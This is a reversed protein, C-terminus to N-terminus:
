RESLYTELYNFQDKNLSYFVRRGEKRISVLGAIKLSKLHFSLKSQAVNLRECIESVCLEDNNLIDIVRLRIPDSLSQFGISIVEQNM